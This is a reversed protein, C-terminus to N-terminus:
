LVLLGSVSYTISDADAHVPTVRVVPPVMDNAVTGAAATLGPGIRLVTTGAATIAASALLTFVKGSLRDVGAVTFVVSPTAAVATVDIVVMLGRVGPPLEFEATDPSATRAASAYATFRVDGRGLRTVTNAM